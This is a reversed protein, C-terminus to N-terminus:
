QTAAPAAVPAPAPEVAPAAAPEAAGSALQTLTAILDDYETAGEDGQTEISALIARVADVLRLLATTIGPTLQLKGDRLLALLNEGVHSVSELKGFGLFGCTGKITHICRFIAALLERDRPRQELSVLDRDLQDLGEHSEVLFERIIDDMDSM